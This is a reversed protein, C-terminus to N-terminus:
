VTMTFSSLWGGILIINLIVIVWAAAAKILGIIACIRGIRVETLRRDCGSSVVLALIGFIIGAVLISLIGFVLVMTPKGTREQPYEIDPTERSTYDYMKQM